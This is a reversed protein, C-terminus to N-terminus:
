EAQVREAEDEPMICPDCNCKMSGEYGVEIAKKANVWDKLPQLYIVHLILSLLWMFGQMFIMFFEASWFHFKWASSSQRIPWESFIYIIESVWPTAGLFIGGWLGVHAWTVFFDGSAWWSIMEIFFVLFNFVWACLYGTPLWSEFFARQRTLTWLYWIPADYNGTHLSEQWPIFMSAILWLSWLLSMIGIAVAPSDDAAIEKLNGEPITMNEWM